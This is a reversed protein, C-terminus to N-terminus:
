GEFAEGDKYGAYDARVTDGEAVARDTVEASYAYNQLLADLENEFEEDTLAPSAKTVSLGEVQGLRVYGSMDAAAFDFPDASAWASIEDSTLSALDVAAGGSETGGGSVSDTIFDAGGPTNEDEAAPTQGGPALTMGELEPGAGACSACLLLAALIPIITKKM